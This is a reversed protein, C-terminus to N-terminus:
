RAEPAPCPVLDGALEVIRQGPYVLLDGARLASGGGLWFLPAPGPLVASLEGEPELMQQTTVAAPWPGPRLPYYAGEAIALLYLPRWYLDGQDGPGAVVAHGGDPSVLEVDLGEPVEPAPPRTTHAGSRPAACRLSEEPLEFLPEHHHLIQEFTVAGTPLDIRVLVHWEAAFDDADMLTACVATGDDLSRLDDAGQVGLLARLEGPTAGELSRSVEAPLAGFLDAFERAAGGECRMLRPAEGATFFLVSGDGLPFPCEAAGSCLTQLADDGLTLRHVGRRDALIACDSPREAGPARPPSAETSEPAASATEAEVTEPPQRTRSGCGMPLALLLYLLPRLLPSTKMM